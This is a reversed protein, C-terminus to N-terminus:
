RAATIRHLVHAHQNVASTLKGGFSQIERNLSNTSNYSAVRGNYVYGTCTRRHFLYSLEAAHSLKFLTPWAVLM